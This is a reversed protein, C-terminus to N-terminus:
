DSLLLGQWASVAQQYLESRPSFYQRVAAKQRCHKLGMVDRNCGKVAM